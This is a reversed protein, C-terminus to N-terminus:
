GSLSYEAPAERVRVYHMRGVLRALGEVELVALTGMVVTIPLVTRRSLEDVHQPELELSKLVQVEEETDVSLLGPLVPQEGTLASLNLEELVDEVQVVLKAGEQILQNTLKSASSYISGPVCSVERDQELAHRVTWLVGSGERGEVVLTGLSLGSLM